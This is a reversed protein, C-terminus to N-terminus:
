QHKNVNDTLYVQTEIYADIEEQTMADNAIQLARTIVYQKKEAGTFHKLKEADIILGNISKKIEAITEEKAIAKEEDTKANKKRKFYAVINVTLSIAFLLLTLLLDINNVIFEKM